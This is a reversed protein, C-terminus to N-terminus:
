ADLYKEKCQNWQPGLGHRGAIDGVHQLDIAKSENLAAIRAYDKGRETQLAIVALHDATVVDMYRMQAM